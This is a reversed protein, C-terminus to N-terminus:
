AAQPGPPEPQHVVKMGSRREIMKPKGNPAGTRGPRFKKSAMEVIKFLDRFSSPKILYSNAGLSAALRRHEPDESSSLVIAPITAWKPNAKLMGLLALGDIVPMQLDTIIVSPWPYLNRDAFKGEGSLYALAEAGDELSQLSAGLGIQDLVARFLLRDSPSDDVHLIVIPKSAM